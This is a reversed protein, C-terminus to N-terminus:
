LLRQLQERWIFVNDPILPSIVDYRSICPAWYLCCQQLDRVGVGALTVFMWRPCWLTVGRALNVLQLPKRIVDGRSWGQRVRENGVDINRSKNGATAANCRRRTARKTCFTRHIINCCLEKNLAVSGNIQIWWPLTDLYFFTNQASLHTKDGNCWVVRRERREM